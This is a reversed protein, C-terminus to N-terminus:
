VEPVGYCLDDKLVSLITKLTRGKDHSILGKLNELFVARLQHNKIIEVVDFFLIGRMDDFGGRKGAISFLRVRFALVCFM